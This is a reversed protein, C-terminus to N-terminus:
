IKFFLSDTIEDVLRREEFARRLHETTLIAHIEPGFHDLAQAEDAISVEDFYIEMGEDCAAEFDDETYGQFFFYGRVYLGAYEGKFSFDGIKVNEDTVEITDIANKM